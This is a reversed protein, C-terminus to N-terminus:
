CYLQRSKNINTSNVKYTINLLGRIHIISFIGQSCGWLSTKKILNDTANCELSSGIYKAKTLAFVDYEGKM